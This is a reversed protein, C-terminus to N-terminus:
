RTSNRGDPVPAPKPAPTGSGQPLAPKTATGSTTGSQTTGTGSGSHLTGYGSSAQAIYLLPELVPAGAPKAPGTVTAACVPMSFVMALLGAQALAVALLKPSPGVAEADRSSISLKM